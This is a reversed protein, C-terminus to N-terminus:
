TQDKIDDADQKDGETSEPDNHQSLPAYTFGCPLVLCDAEEATVEVMVDTGIFVGALKLLWTAIIMRFSFLRPMKVSIHLNALLEDGNIIIESSKSAAM